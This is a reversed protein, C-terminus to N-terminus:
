VGRQSISSPQVDNRHQVLRRSGEFDRSLCSYLEFWCRLKCDRASREFTASFRKSESRSAGRVRRSLKARRRESMEWSFLSFFENSKRTFYEHSRSTKRWRLSWIKINRISSFMQMIFDHPSSRPTPTSPSPGKESILFSRPSKSEVLRPFPTLLGVVSLGM